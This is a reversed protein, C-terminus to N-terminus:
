KIDILIEQLSKNIVNYRYIYGEDKYSIIKWEKDIIINSFYGNTTSSSSHLLEYEEKIFDYKYIDQLVSFICSDKRSSIPYFYAKVKPRPPNKMKIQEINGDIISIMSIGMKYPSYSYVALLSDSYTATISHMSYENLDSCKSISKSQIDVLFLDIGHPAKKEIPSNNKFETAKLFYILSDNNSFCYDLLTPSTVLSEVEGTEIDIINLVQNKSNYNIYAVKKGDHSFKPYNDSGIKPHTLRKYSNNKLSYLYISSINLKYYSVVMNSDYIDFNGSVNDFLNPPSNQCSTNTLMISIIFLIITQTNKM